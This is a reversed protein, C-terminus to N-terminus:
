VSVEDNMLDIVDNASAGASRLSRSRRTRPISDRSATAVRPSSRRVRRSAATALRVGYDVSRSPFSAPSSEMGRAVAAAPSSGSASEAARRAAVRREILAHIREQAAARSGDSRSVGRSGGYLSATAASGRAVGPSNDLVPDDIGRWPTRRTAFGSGPSARRTPPTTAAALSSRRQPSSARGASASRSRAVDGATTQMRGGGSTAAAEASSMFRVRGRGAGGADGERTLYMEMVGMMGGEEGGGAEANRVIRITPRGGDNNFVIERGSSGLRFITSGGANTAAPGAISSFSQLLQEIMAGNITLGSMSPQNRDQVTRVNVQAAPENSRNSNTRRRSNPSSDATRRKRKGRRRGSASVEGEPLPEMRRIERFRAKCCPCRNETNAWRDICDFCFKHTCGNLTATQTPSPPNDLCIPCTVEELSSPKTDRNNSGSSQNPLVTPPEDDSSDDLVIPSEKSAGEAHTGRAARRRGSAEAIRATADVAAQRASRRPPLSEEGDNDAANTSRAAARTTRTSRSRGSSGGGGRRSSSSGIAFSPVVVDMAAPSTLAFRRARTVRPSSSMISLNQKLKNRLSNPKAGAQPPSQFDVSQRSSVSSNRKYQQTVSFAISVPPISKTATNTHSAPSSTRDHSSRYKLKATM